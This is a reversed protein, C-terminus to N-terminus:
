WRPVRWGVVKAEIPNTKEVAYWAGERWECRFPLLYTGNHDECLLQLPQSPPPPGSNFEALRHDRTAMHMALKASPHLGHYGTAGISDVGQPGGGACRSAVEGANAGNNM